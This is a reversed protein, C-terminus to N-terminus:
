ARAKNLEQTLQEKRLEERITAVASLHLGDVIMRYRYDNKDDKCYELIAARSEKALAVEQLVASDRERNKPIMEPHGDGEHTRKREFIGRAPDTGEKLRRRLYRIWTERYLAFMLERNSVLEDIRRKFLEDKRKLGVPTLDTNRRAIFNQVELEIEGQREQQAADLATVTELDEESLSLPQKLILPQHYDYRKGM